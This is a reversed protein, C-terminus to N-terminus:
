LPFPPHKISSNPSVPDTSHVPHLNSMYVYIRDQFNTERGNMIHAVVQVTGKAKNTPAQGQDPTHSPINDFRSVHKSSLLSFEVGKGKGRKRDKWKDKGEQM